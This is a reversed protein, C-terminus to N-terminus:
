IFNDLDQGRFVKVTRGVLLYETREQIKKFFALRDIQHGNRVIQMRAADLRVQFRNEIMRLVEDLHGAIAQMVTADLTITKMPRSGGRLPVDDDAVIAAGQASVPGPGGRPM